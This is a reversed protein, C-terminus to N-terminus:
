SSAETKLKIIKSKSQFSDLLNALLEDKTITEGPRQANLHELLVTLRDSATYYREHIKPIDAETLKEILFDLIEPIKIKRKSERNVSEKYKELAEFARNNLSVKQYKRTKTKEKENM